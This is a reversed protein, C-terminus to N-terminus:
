YQVQKWHEIDAKILKYSKTEIVLGSKYEFQLKAVVKTDTQYYVKLVRVNTSANQCTYLGKNLNRM